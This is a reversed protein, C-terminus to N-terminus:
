GVSGGSRLRLQDLHLIHEAISQFSSLFIVISLREFELYLEEM